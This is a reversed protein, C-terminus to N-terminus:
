GGVADWCPPADWTRVPGASSGASVHTVVMEVAEATDNRVLHLDQGGIYPRNRGYTQARCDADYVTLSGSLIAVAHIGSHAHWQSTQGAEYVQSVVSVGGPGDVTLSHPGPVAAVDAGPSVPATGARGPQVRALVIGITAAVALLGAATLIA